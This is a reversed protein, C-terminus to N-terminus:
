AEVFSILTILCLLARTGRSADQAPTGARGLARQPAEKSGKSESDLSCLFPEKNWGINAYYDPGLQTLDLLLRQVWQKDLLLLFFFFFFAMRQQRM